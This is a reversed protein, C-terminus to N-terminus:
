MRDPPGALRNFLNGELDSPHGFAMSLAGPILNTMPAGDDTERCPQSRDDLPSTPSFEAMAGPAEARVIAAGAARALRVASFGNEILLSTLKLAAAGDADHSLRAVLRGSPRLARRAVHVLRDLRDSPTWRPAIVLEYAGPETGECSRLLTAALSGRRILGCLLASGREGIVLAHAGAVAGAFDLLVDDDTWDSYPRETPTSDSQLPPESGESMLM